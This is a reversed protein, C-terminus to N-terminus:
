GEVKQISPTVKDARYAVIADKAVLPIMNANQAVRDCINHLVQTRTTGRATVSQQILANMQSDSAMWAKTFAALDPNWWTVVMGPDAYGFLWGLSLDFDATKGTYGRKAVEGADLQTIRVKLGASQLNRQILQAIPAAMPIQAITMIEVTKGTAGTAQVLQRAQESTPNPSPLPPRTACVRSCRLCPRPPGASERSSWSRRYVSDRGISLAVAQRLRDDRFISSKANVDLRYFDTTSQVTTTVNAEGKLLRISDPNEYTTM